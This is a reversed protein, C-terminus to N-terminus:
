AVLTARRRRQEIMALVGAVISLASGGTAPDIEPVATGIIWSSGDTPSYNRTYWGLQQAGWEMSYYDSVSSTHNVWRISGDDLSGVTGIALRSEAALLLSESTATLTGVADFVAEAQTDTLEHITAGKKLTLHWSELGSGNIFTGTGSFTLTGNLSWGDQGAAYNTVRYVIEACAPSASGAFAIVALALMARLQVLSKM